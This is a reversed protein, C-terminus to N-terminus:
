PKLPWVPKVGPAGETLLILECFAYTWVMPLVVAALFIMWPVVGSASFEPNPRFSRIRGMARALLLRIDTDMMQGHESTDDRDPMDFAKWLVLSNAYSFVGGWILGAWLGFAVGHLGREVAGLGHVGMWTAFILASSAVGVVFPVWRRCPQHGWFHSRLSLAACYISVTVFGFTGIAISQLDPMTRKGNVDFGSRQRICSPRRRIEDISGAPRGPTRIVM